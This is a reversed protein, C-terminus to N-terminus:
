KKKKPPAPKPKPKAEPKPTVDAKQARVLIGIRPSDLHHLEDRRLRRREHLRYSGLAGSDVPQTYVLDADLHLYRGVILAVSGDLPYIKQDAPISGATLDSFPAGHHLHLSVTRDAPPDKQYWAVRLLPQHNRSNRLHNWADLLGFLEDPLVEIGAARLQQTEYPELAGKLDATQVPLPSEAGAGSKDAFVILDVRYREASAPAVALAALLAIFTAPRIM